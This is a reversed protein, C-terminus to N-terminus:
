LSSPNGRAYETAPPMDNGRLRYDLNISSLLLMDNGRLRSDLNISSLLLMDNGRLRSDLNISSLLLMDHDSKLNADLNVSPQM